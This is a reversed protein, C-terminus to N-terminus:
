ASNRRDTDPWQNTLRIRGIWDDSHPALRLSVSQATAVAPSQGSQQNRAPCCDHVQDVEASGGRQPSAMIVARISRREARMLPEDAEEDLMVRAVEREPERRILHADDREVVVLRQDVVGLRDHGFEARVHHAHVRIEAGRRELGLGGVGFFQADVGHEDDAAAVHFGACYADAEVM